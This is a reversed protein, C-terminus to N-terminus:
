VALKDFLIFTSCSHPHLTSSAPATETHSSQKTDKSLTEDNATADIIEEYRPPLIATAVIELTVVKYVFKRRRNHNYKPVSTITYRCPVNGKGEQESSQHQM